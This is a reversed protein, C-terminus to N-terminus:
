PEFRESVPAEPESKVTNTEEARRRDARENDLQQNIRDLDARLPPLKMERM